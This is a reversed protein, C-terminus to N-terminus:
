IIKRILEPNDHVNGIVKIDEIGLLSHTYDGEKLCFGCYDDSWAVIAIFKDHSLSLVDRAEVIDGEYIKKGKRDKKGIYQGVTEPIVEYGYKELDM